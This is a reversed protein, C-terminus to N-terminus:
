LKALFFYVTLHYIEHAFIVDKPTMIQKLLVLMVSTLMKGLASFHLDQGLRVLTKGESSGRHKRHSPAAIELVLTSRAAATGRTLEAESLSPLAKAEGKFRQNPGQPGGDM